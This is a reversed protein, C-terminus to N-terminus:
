FTQMGDGPDPRVARRRGVPELRATAEKKTELGGGRRRWSESVLEGIHVGLVMGEMDNLERRPIRAPSAKWLPMTDPHVLLLAFNPWKKWKLILRERVHRCSTPLVSSSFQVLNSVVRASGMIYQCWLNSLFINKKKFNQWMKWNLDGGEEGCM